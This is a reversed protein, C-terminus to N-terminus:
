DVPGEIEPSNCILIQAETYQGQHVGLLFAHKGLQNAVQVTVFEFM